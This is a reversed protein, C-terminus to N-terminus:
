RIDIEKDLVVASIVLLLTGPLLTMASAYDSALVSDILPEKKTGSARKEM